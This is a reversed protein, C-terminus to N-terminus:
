TAWYVKIEFIASKYLDIEEILNKPLAWLADRDGSIKILLNNRSLGSLVGGVFKGYKVEDLKVRDVVYHKIKTAFESSRFSFKDSSSNPLGLAVWLGIQQNIPLSRVLQKIKEEM